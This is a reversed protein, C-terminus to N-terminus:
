YFGKHTVQDGNITDRVGPIALLLGAINMPYEPMLCGKRSRAGNVGSLEAPPASIARNHEETLANPWQEYLTISRRNGLNISVEM